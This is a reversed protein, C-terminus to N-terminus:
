AQSYDVFGKLTADTLKRRTLRFVGVGSRSGDINTNGEITQLGGSPLVAEVIGTDGLGHGFDLIFILGPKVLSRKALAEAATIKENANAKNWHDLCGATKPLPTNRHLQIAGQLFSWYVFCMCWPRSDPSGTLSVSTSTLYQDVMPGRNSGVPVEMQGIQTSAVAIAQALLLTAPQVPGPTPGFLASWTHVGIQGDVKLPIGSEDVHQSQFLRVLAEMAADYQGNPQGSYGLVQLRAQVAMISARDTSGATLVVGDFIPM